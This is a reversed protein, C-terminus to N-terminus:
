DLYVMVIFESGNYLKMQELIRVSFSNYRFGLADFNNGIWRTIEHYYILLVIAYLLKNTDYFSYFNM